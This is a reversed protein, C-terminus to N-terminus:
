AAEVPTMGIGSVLEAGNLFSVVAEVSGAEKELPAAEVPTTGAGSVLEAGKWLAVTGEPGSVELLAGTASGVEDAAVVLAEAPRGDPEALKGLWDESPIKRLMLLEAAPLGDEEGGTTTSVELSAGMPVPIGEPECAMGLWDESPM